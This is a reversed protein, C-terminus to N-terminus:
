CVKIFDKEKIAQNQNKVIEAINESKFGQREQYNNTRTSLDTGEGGRNVKEPGEANEVEKDIEIVEVSTMDSKDNTERENDREVDCNIDEFVQTVENEEVNRQTMGSDETDVRENESEEKGYRYNQGTGKNIIKESNQKEERFSLHADCAGKLGTSKDKEFDKVPMMETEKKNDKEWDCSKNKIVIIDSKEGIDIQILGSHENGDSEDKRTDINRREKDVDTVGIHGTSPEM